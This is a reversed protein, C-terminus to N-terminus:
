ENYFKEYHNHLGKVSHADSGFVLPIGLFRAYEIYPMPPYPERCDPKSLGASNMDIEYGAKGILEIMQRIQQSDEIREGHALQFKRILTPHGIRKPKYEGLDARISAALTDYYLEYASEISGAKGALEMFAEKSFDACIYERGVQLFHVSLIADDLLPGFEDLFDRIESEFGQIYDVEFGTRIRIDKKYADKVRSIEDLYAPVDERKMASDRLPTPDTFSLPLPAHEAFTIDTFGSRIAKEVYADLQDDTGHPCFATHIHGDRKM